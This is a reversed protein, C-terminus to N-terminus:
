DDIRLFKGSRDFKLDMGNLLEVEYHKSSKDVKVIQQGKHNKSIYEKIVPLVFFDPVAKHGCDVETWEGKSNFEIETGDSLIVEYENGGVVHSEVKVRNVELKPFQDKLITRAAPPLPNANHYVQDRAAMPLTLLLLASVIALLKKM